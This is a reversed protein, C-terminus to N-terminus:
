ENIIADVDVDDIGGAVPAETKPAQAKPAKNMASQQLEPPLADSYIDKAKKGEGNGSANTDTKGYNAIENLNGNLIVPVIENVKKFVETIYKETNENNRSDGPFKPLFYQYMDYDPSQAQMIFAKFFPMIEPKIKGDPGIDSMKFEHMTKKGNEDTMIGIAGRKKPAWDSASYERGKMGDYISEKCVLSIVSSEFVNFIDEREFGAAKQEPTPNLKKDILGATTANPGANPYVFLRIMGIQEKDPSNLIQVKVCAQQSRKFYKDLKAQAISDGEKDAKGKLEFYANLVECKPAGKINAVSTYQFSKGKREPDPLSRYLSRLGIQEKPGYGVNPLIKILYTKGPQPEFFHEEFNIGSGDYVIDEAKVVIKEDSNVDITPAMFAATLADFDQNEPNFGNKEDIM